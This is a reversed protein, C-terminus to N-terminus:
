LARKRKSTIGLVAYIPCFSFASTAILVGGIGIAAWFALPSAWLSWATVFPAVILLAGVVLRIIRDLTGINGM